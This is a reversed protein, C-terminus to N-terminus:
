KRFFGNKFFSSNEDEHEAEENNEEFPLANDNFTFGKPAEAEPTFINVDEEEEASAEFVPVAKPDLAIAEAAREADMAVCDPMENILALQKKYLELLESKFAAIEIRTKNFLAQERKVVEATAAEVAEKRKITVALEADLEAQAAAKKEGFRVDFTDLAIKADGAVKDAAAKAESIILEAKDNADDITKDALKQAEILISQLSSQSNKYTEIEEGLKAIKSNLEAIAAEYRGYDEEITDLLDDVEDQKYGGMAKSFRVNRIDSATLM